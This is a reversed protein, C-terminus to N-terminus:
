DRSGAGFRSPLGRLREALEAARSARVRRAAPLIKLRFRLGRDVNYIGVRPWRLPSPAHLRGPLTGATEYGARAAAAVVREDHDGYPYALSRCPLGLHRECDSRSGELEAHLGADDLRTLHPHTRTHSGVEWGQGALARLEEWSMPALEHEHEGGLWHDTGPWATPKPTGAFATPVFVTAPLGLGSLIPRALETVSRYGDDFTVALTKPGPTLIAERFTAGRYGRRILFELQSELARPTISLPAHWRESVAHYCLILVDAM